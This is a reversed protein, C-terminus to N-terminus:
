GVVESFGKYESDERNHPSSNGGRFAAPTVLSCLTKNVSRLTFIEQASMAVYDIIEDLLECPLSLIGAFPM